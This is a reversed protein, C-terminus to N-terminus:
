PDLAISMLAPALFETAIETSPELEFHLGDPRAAVDDIGSAPYWSALDIAVTASGHATAVIADGLAGIANPDMMAEYPLMGRRVIPPLIWAVRVGREVLDGTLARYDDLRRAGFRVDTSSLVGEVDNWLRPAVDARTAMLVVLDPRLEEIAAPLRRDLMDTCGAAYGLGEYSPVTGDRIFGCSIAILQGVEAYRPHADAWAVM